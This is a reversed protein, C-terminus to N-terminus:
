NIKEFEVKHHCFDGNGSTHAAFKNGNLDKIEAYTRDIFLIEYEKPLHNNLYDNMTNINTSSPNETEWCYFDTM